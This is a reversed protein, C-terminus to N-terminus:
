QLIRRNRVARLIQDADRIAADVQKDVIPTSRRRAALPLNQRPEAQIELPTSPPSWYRSLLAIDRVDVKKNGNFDGDDASAGHRGYNKVLIGLDHADVRLDGSLDGTALAFTFSFAGGATGNGSPFVDRDTGAVSPNSWDGDVIIGSVSAVDGALELTWKGAPLPSAFQWTTRWSGYNIDFSSSAMVPTTIGSFTDQLILDGADADVQETFVLTITQVDVLSISWSQPRVRNFMREAMSLSGIEVDLIRPATWDWGRRGADPNLQLAITAEVFAPEHDPSIAEAIMGYGKRAIMAWGGWYPVDRIQLSGLAELALYLEEVLQNSWPRGDLPCYSLFGTLEGSAFTLWTGTPVTALFDILEQYAKFKEDSDDGDCQVFTDFARTEFLLGTDSDLQGVILGRGGHGQGSRAFVTADDSQIMAGNGRPLPANATVRIHPRTNFDVALQGLTNRLRLSDFAPRATRDNRRIGMWERDYLFADRRNPNQRGPAGDLWWEDVFDYVLGGIAVGNEREASLNFYLEDWLRRVLRDQRDVDEVGAVEDYADGSYESVIMGKGNSISRWQDFVDTFSSGRYLSFGWVNVSPVWENVIQDMYPPEPFQNLPLPFRERSLRHIGEVHPDLVFTGVVHNTDLSQVLEAVEQVHEATQELTDFTNYYYPHEHAQPLDWENIGVGWMLLAPHSKWYNVVQAIHGLDVLTQPDASNLHMIVKLGAADFANMLAVGRADLDAHVYLRITNFGGEVILPIDTEFSCYLDDKLTEETTNADGPSYPLGKVTFPEPPAFSGDSLRDSVLLRSGDMTSITPQWTDSPVSPGDAVNCDFALRAELAELILARCRPNRSFSASMM